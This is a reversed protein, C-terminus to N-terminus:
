HIENKVAKLIVQIERETFESAIRYIEKLEKKTLSKKIRKEFDAFTEPKLHKEAVLIEAQYQKLYDFRKDFEKDEVEELTTFNGNDLNEIFYKRISHSAKRINPELKRIEQDLRRRYISLARNMRAAMKFRRSKADEIKEYADRFVEDTKYGHYAISNLQWLFLDYPSLRKLHPNVFEPSEVEGALIDELENEERRAIIELQETIEDETMGKFVYDKFKEFIHPKLHKVMIFFEESIQDQLYTVEYLEQDEIQEREIKQYEEALKTELNDIAADMEKLVTRLPLIQSPHVNKLEKVGEDREKILQLLQETYKKYYAPVEIEFKRTECDFALLSHFEDKKLTKKIEDIKKQLRENM